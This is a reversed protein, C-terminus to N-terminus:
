FPPKLTLGGDFTLDRGTMWSAESSVLWAILSAIESAEGVRGLLHWSGAQENTFPAEDLLRTNVVAPSVVNARAGHQAIEAAVCRAFTTLAAKASCYDTIGPYPLNSAVSSVFVYSGQSRTIEPLTAETLNVATGLCIELTQTWREWGLEGTPSPENIDGVSHIVADIKGLTAVMERIEEPSRLDVCHGSWSAGDPKGGSRSVGVVNWGDKVLRHACAAGIGSSAGAVLALPASDDVTDHKDQKTENSKM